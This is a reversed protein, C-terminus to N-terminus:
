DTLRGVKDIQVAGSSCPETSLVAVTAVKEGQAELQRAVEYAVVGGFCLGALHYPGHAQRQRILALYGAAMEPVTSRPDTGPVHRFRFICGGVIPRM